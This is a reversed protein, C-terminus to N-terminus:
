DDYGGLGFFDLISGFSGSSVSPRGLLDSIQDQNEMWSEMVSQHRARVSTDSCVYERCEFPKVPHIACRGGAYFVCEGRPDRGFEQGPVGGVIAPSLVFIDEHGSAKDGQWYDVMLKEKFFEPLTMGLFAAAREAEGPKFWGPKHSCAGQCSQCTGSEKTCETM